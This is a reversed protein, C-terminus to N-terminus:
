KLILYIIISFFSSRSQGLLTLGPVPISITESISYEGDQFYLVDGEVANALATQFSCPNTENCFSDVGDPSIYLMEGKVTVFLAWVILFLIPFKTEGRRTTRVM